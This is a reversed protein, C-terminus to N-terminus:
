LHIQGSQPAIASKNMSWGPLFQKQSNPLSVHFVNAAGCCFFDKFFTTSLVNLEL